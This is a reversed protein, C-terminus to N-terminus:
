TKQTRIHRCHQEGTAAHQWIDSLRCHWVSFGRRCMKCNAKYVDGSVSDLWPRAEEWERRFKQLRKRKHPSPPTETTTSMKWLRLNQSWSPVVHIHLCVSSRLQPPPTTRLDQWSLKAPRRIGQTKNQDNNNSKANIHTHCVHTNSM